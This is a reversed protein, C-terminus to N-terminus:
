FSSRLERWDSAPLLREGGGRSDFLYHKGPQTKLFDFWLDYVDLVKQRDQLVKAMKKSRKPGTYYGMSMRPKIERDNWRQGLEAPSTIMTVITLNHALRFVDIARDRSYNFPGRLYPRLLDYHYALKKVHPAPLEELHNPL